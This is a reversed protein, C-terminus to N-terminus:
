DSYPRDPGVSSWSMPIRQGSLMPMEKGHSM